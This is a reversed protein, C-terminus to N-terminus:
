DHHPSRAEIRVADGRQASKLRDLCRMLPLAIGEPLFGCAYPWYTFCTIRDDLGADELAARAAAVDDGSLPRERPGATAQRLLDRLGKALHFLLHGPQSFWPREDYPESIFLRGGARLLRAQAAVARGVDPMHHVVGTCVVADFAGDRFPLREGDAVVCCATQGAAKAKARAQVVMALSADFSIVPLGMALYQLTGAGTGCGFDLVRRAGAALLERGWPQVTYHRHDLRYFRSVRRDYSAAVEQREHYRRDQRKWAEAEATEVGEVNNAAQTM